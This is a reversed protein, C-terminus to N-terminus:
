FWQRIIDEVTEYVYDAPFQTTKLDERPAEGMLIVGTEVGANIGCAIDTYLRDGIVIAEEGTFGSRELCIDVIRPNPKGLYVPKRGTTATLMDCISGCDPIFGFPAPCRLDPNTAYFPADTTILAESAECLKEYDLESDYAVLICDLDPACKETVNLGNRRLEGVYSGTGLCYIKKGTFEKKLFELTVFGATVFRDEPVELGFVERFRKVYDAGSRTSNNTIFFAKGGSEEIKALLERSGEFLTDGVALTGDIDFLFCKKSM